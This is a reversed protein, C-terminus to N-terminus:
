PDPRVDPPIEKKFEREVGNAFENVVDDTIAEEIVDIGLGSLTGKIVCLAIDVIAKSLEHDDLQRFYNGVTM